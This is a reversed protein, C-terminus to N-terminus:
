PRDVQDAVPMATSSIPRSPRRVSISIPEAPYQRESPAVAAAEAVRAADAMGCVSAV